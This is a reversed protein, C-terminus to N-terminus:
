WFYSQARFLLHMFIDRVAFGRLFCRLTLIRKYNNENREFQM